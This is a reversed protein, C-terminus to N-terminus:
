SFVIFVNVENSGSVIHNSYVICIYGVISHKYMLGDLVGVFTLYLHTILDHM